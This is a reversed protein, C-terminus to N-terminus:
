CWPPSCTNSGTSAVLAVMVVALAGTAGSIM